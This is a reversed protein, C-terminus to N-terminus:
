QLGSVAVLNEIAARAAVSAQAIAALSAAIAAKRNHDLSEVQRGDKAAEASLWWQYGAIVALGASALNIGIYLSNVATEM